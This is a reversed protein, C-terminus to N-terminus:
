KHILRKEDIEAFWDDTWGYTWFYGRWENIEWYDCNNRKVWYFGEERKM